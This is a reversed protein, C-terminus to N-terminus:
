RDIDEGKRKIEFRMYSRNIDSDIRHWHDKKIEQTSVSLLIKRDEM